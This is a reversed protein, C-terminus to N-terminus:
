FTSSSVRIRNTIRQNHIRTIETDIAFVFERGDGRIVHVLPGKETSVKMLVIRDEKDLMKYVDASGVRYEEIVTLRYVIHSEPDVRNDSFVIGNKAIYAMTKEEERECYINLLIREEQWRRHLRTDKWGPCVIVKPEVCVPTKEIRFSVCATVLLIMAITLATKM